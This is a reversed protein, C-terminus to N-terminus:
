VIKSNTKPDSMAGRATDPDANFAIDCVVLGVMFAQRGSRDPRCVLKTRLVGSLFVSTAVSQIAIFNYIQKQIQFAGGLQTQTRM